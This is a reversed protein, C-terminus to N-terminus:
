QCALAGTTCGSPFVFGEQRSVVISESVGANGPWAVRVSVRWVNTALATITSTVNFQADGSQATTQGSAYVVTAPLTGVTVACCPNMIRAEQNMLQEFLIGSARGLYDSKSVTKWAPSLLSFIAMIGVATMFTAIVVELLGFGKENCKWTLLKKRSNNMILAAM